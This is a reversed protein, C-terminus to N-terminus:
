GSKPKSLRNGRKYPMKSAAVGRSVAGGIQKLTSFLATECELRLYHYVFITPFNDIGSMAPSSLM